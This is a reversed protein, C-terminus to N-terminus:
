MVHYLLLADSSYAKRVALTRCLRTGRSVVASCTLMRVEANYGKGVVYRCKM